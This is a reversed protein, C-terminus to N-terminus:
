SCAALHPWLLPAVAELDEIDMKFGCGCSDLCVVASKFVALSTSHCTFALHRPFVLPLRGFGPRHPFSESHLMHYRPQYRLINFASGAPSHDLLSVKEEIHLDESTGQWPARQWTSRHDTPAKTQEPM